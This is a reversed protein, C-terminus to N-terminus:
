HDGIEPATNQEIQSLSGTIQQVTQPSLGLMAFWQSYGQPTLGGPQFASQVGGLQFIDQSFGGGFSGGLDSPIGFGGAAIQQWYEIERQASQDAASKGAAAQQASYEDLSKQASAREIFSFQTEGTLRELEEMAQYRKLAAEYAPTGPQGAQLALGEAISSMHLGAAALAAAGQPGIGQGPLPLSTTNPQLGREADRAHAAIVELDALRRQEALISQQIRLQQALTSNGSTEADAIRQQIDQQKIQIGVSERIASATETGYQGRDVALQISAEFAETQAARLAKARAAALATQKELELSAALKENTEALVQNGEAWAQNADDIAQKIEGEYELEIKLAGATLEHGLALEREIQAKRASEALSVQADELAKADADAQRQKADAIQKQLPVMEANLKNLQEQKAIGDDISMSGDEAAAALQQEIIARQQQLGALREEDTMAKLRTSEQDQQFKAIKEMQADTLESLGPPHFDISPINATVGRRLDALEQRAAAIKADLETTDAGIPVSTKPTTLVRLDTEAKTIKADLEATNAGVPAEAKQQKFTEMERQAAAIKNNLESTDAGIQAQAKQTTFFELHKQAAEIKMDLETVDVDVPVVRREAQLQKLEAQATAINADLETTDATVTISHKQAELADLRKQAEDIKAMDVVPASVGTFAEKFKSGIEAWGKFTEAFPQAKNLKEVTMSFADGFAKLGNTLSDFTAAGAGSGFLFQGFGKKFDGTAIKGLGSFVDGVAQNVKDLGNILPGLLGEGLTVRATVGLRKLSDDFHDLAKITGPDMAASLKSTGAALGELTTRLETGNRGLVKVMAAADMGSRGVEIMARSLTLSKDAWDTVGLAALSKQMEKDGAQAKAIAVELRNFGMALSELSAGNEEAAAGFQQLDTTSVKFRDSLDQIRSGYDITAKTAAVLGGIAFSQAFIGSLQQQARMGYNRLEALGTAARSTDSGIIIDVDNFGPM